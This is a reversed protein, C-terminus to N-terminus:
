KLRHPDIWPKLTAKDQQYIPVKKMIDEVQILSPTGATKVTQVQGERIFMHDPLVVIDKNNDEGQNYDPCHSLTDACSNSTGKIHHIKLDYESLELVERAM